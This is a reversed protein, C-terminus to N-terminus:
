FMPCLDTAKCFEDPFLERSLNDKDKKLKEWYIHTLWAIEQAIHSDSLLEKCIKYAEIGDTSEEQGSESGLYNFGIRECADHIIFTHAVDDDIIIENTVLALETDIYAALRKCVTCVHHSMFGSTSSSSSSSSSKTM